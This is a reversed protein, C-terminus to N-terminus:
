EAVGVPNLGTEGSADEPEGRSLLQKLIALGAIHGLAMLQAQVCFEWVATPWGHLTSPGAFGAFELTQPVSLSGIMLFGTFAGFVMWFFLLKWFHQKTLEFSRSMVDEVTHGYGIALAAGVSLSVWVYVAPLILCIASCLLALGSMLLYGVLRPLLCIGQWASRLLGAQYGSERQQIGWLFSVTWPLM